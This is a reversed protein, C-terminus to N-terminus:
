GADELLSKLDKKADAKVETELTAIQAHLEQRAPNGDITLGDVLAHLVDTLASM